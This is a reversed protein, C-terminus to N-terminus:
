AVSTLLYVINKTSSDFTDIPLLEKVARNARREERSTMRWTEQNGNVVIGCVCRM